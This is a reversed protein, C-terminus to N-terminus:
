FAEGRGRGLALESPSPDSDPPALGSDYELGWARWARWARCGAKGRAAAHGAINWAQSRPPVPGTVAASM